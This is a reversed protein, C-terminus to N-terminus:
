AKRRLWLLVEGRLENATTISLFLVVVPMEFEADQDGMHGLEGVEGAEYERFVPLARQLQEVPGM